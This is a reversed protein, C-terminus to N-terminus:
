LRTTRTSSSPDGIAIDYMRLCAERGFLDNVRPVSRQTHHLTIGAEALIARGAAELRAMAADHVGDDDPTVNLLAGMSCFCLAAPHRPSIRAGGADRAMANQVYRAPDAIIARAMILAEAPTDL